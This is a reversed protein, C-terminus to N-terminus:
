EVRLDRLQQEYAARAEPLVSRATDLLVMYFITGPYRGPNVPRFYRAQQSDAPLNGLPEELALGPLAPPPREFATVVLLGGGEERYLDARDAEARLCPVAPCTSDTARAGGRAAAALVGALTEGPKAVRALVTVSPLVPGRMGAFPGKKVQALCTGQRAPPLSLEENGRVRLVFGCPMSRFAAREGAELTAWSEQPPIEGAVGSRTLEKRLAAIRRREHETAEGAGVVQELAFLDHSPM